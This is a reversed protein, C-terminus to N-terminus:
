QNPPTVPLVEAPNQASEDSNQTDLSEIAKKYSVLNPDVQSYFSARIHGNELPAFDSFYPTKIFESKSFVDGQSALANYSGAESKMSITPGSENNKYIFENFGVKKLTVKQLFLLLKSVAVHSNLLGETASM